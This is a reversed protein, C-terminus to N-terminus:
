ALTRHSLSCIYFEPDDSMDSEAHRRGVFLSIAFDREEKGGPVVFVQEIRPLCDLAMPGLCSDDVPVERWGMIELGQETLRKELDARGAAAKNEDPNLFVQGVAFLDGPEKGFAAKAAKKLFGDPSQILLGCGDGTKGDAAIGGRHTMCTLSEIATQLLKHSAEGKMHAILGFGCNDRFEDPHYLGTMM